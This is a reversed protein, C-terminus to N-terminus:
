SNSILVIKKGKTHNTNKARLPCIESVYNLLSESQEKSLFNTVSLLKIEYIMEKANSTSEPSLVNITRLGRSLYKSRSTKSRLPQKQCYWNKSRRKFFKCLNVM